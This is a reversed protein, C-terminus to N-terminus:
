RAYMSVGTGSGGEGYMHQPILLQKGGELPANPNLKSVQALLWVPVRYNAAVGVLSEGSRAAVQIGTDWIQIPENPPVVYALYYPRISNSIAANPSGEQQRRPAAVLGVRED